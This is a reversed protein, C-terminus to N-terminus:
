KGVRALVARIESGSMKGKTNLVSALTDIMNRTNPDAMLANIRAHAEAQQQNAQLMQDPGFTHGTAIRAFNSLATTSGGMLIDARRSQDPGVHKATTGGPESMGGAYSVAVLNKIEDPTLQNTKTKGSPPSINTYGGSQSLGMERVAGPRLLESIVAHGAEHRATNFATDPDSMNESASVNQKFKTPIDTRPKYGKEFSNPDVLDSGQDSPNQAERQREMEKSIEEQVVVQPDRSNKIKSALRGLMGPPASSAPGQTIQPTSPGVTSVGLPGVTITKTPRPSFGRPGNFANNILWDTNNLNSIRQGLAGQAMGSAVEAPDFKMVGKVVKAIEGLKGISAMTGVQSQRDAVNKRRLAEEQLDSLAGYRKKLDAAGPGTLDDLKDYLASRLAQAEAVVHGTTPDNAAVQQGVKNKAYYSHLENNASQLFDEANALTLPKRYTDATSEIQKVLQPNQVRTRQDINKVMADAVANGDITENSNPGIKNQYQQWLGKKAEPIAKVLDAINEIPQGTAQAHAQLDPGASALTQPFDTKRNIPKIARMMSPVAEPATLGTSQAAAKGARATLTNGLGGSIAQGAVAGGGAAESLGGLASEVADPNGRLAEPANKAATYGGHAILAPGVIEPAVSAAAATALGRPTTVGSAMKGTSGLMGLATNTAESHPLPQGKSAASLNEQRNQEARQNAWDGIHKTLDSAMGPPLGSYVSKLVGTVRDALSPKETEASKEPTEYNSFDIQPPISNEYKSFDIQSM